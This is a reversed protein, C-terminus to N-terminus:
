FRREPHYATIDLSTKKGSVIEAVLKGTVPGLSWGMMAHGTAITLREAKSTRGIYPLGDPSVPRLGCRAGNMEEETIALGEYYSSAAGAIARVREKRIRHNIGSFEMTGAFRTFGEMPTVAVKAEALIAPFRIPLLREVNIRYGKGAQLPLSIGVTRVIGPTWSGAAVVVEDATYDAKDTVVGTVSHGCKKLRVVAENPKFVVEQAALYKKLKEMIRNPTTHADCKYNIAGKVEPHVSPEIEKLAAATLVETELGEREALMAVKLEKEEAKGTKYLMLVGKHELHFPGLAETEHMEKYLAMSLLNLDKILPIAKQVGAETSSRKFYWAWKFFEPDFRPKMYFPSAANFMWKLGQTIVGPAALPIIHSPTLYGANVYSAGETMGSSDIVTVGHGEKRLFYATCLGIIGGGIVIVNKKM